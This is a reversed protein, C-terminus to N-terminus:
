INYTVFLPFKWSQFLKRRINKLTTVKLFATLFLIKLDKFMAEDKSKLKSLYECYYDVCLYIVSTFLM